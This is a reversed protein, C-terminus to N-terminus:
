RVQDTRNSPELSLTGTLHIGFAQCGFLPVGAREMEFAINGFPEHAAPKCTNFIFSKPSAYIPFMEDM